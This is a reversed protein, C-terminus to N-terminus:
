GKEMAQPSGIGWSKQNAEVAEKSEAIDSNASLFKKAYVEVLPPLAGLPCASNQECGAFRRYAQLQLCRKATVLTSSYTDLVLEEAERFRFVLHIMMGVLKQDPGLLMNKGSGDTSGNFFREEQPVYPINNM